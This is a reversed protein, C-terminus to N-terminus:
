ALVAKVVKGAVDTLRFQRGQFRYTFREHDIGLLSLVTAQFDHVSVPDRVANFGFEDSEGHNVGPKTGGGAMWLTFAYPHHDRGWQKTDEVKGQLFPTRGFEGGWIVLTDELLGRRKLDKILAASPKDTNACEKKVGGTVDSHHDWAEHFLQVFRVGREVLRRALLCNNAFSAEGPVAGYMNLTEKSEKSIDMLEPASSQMRYAMEFSNIRTSIEPDGMVGFRQQNLEKLADLSRRQM